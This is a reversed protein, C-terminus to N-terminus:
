KKNQRIERDVAQLPLLKRIKNVVCSNLSCKMNYYLM